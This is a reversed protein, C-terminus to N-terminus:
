VRGDDERVKSAGFLWYYIGIVLIGAVVMFGIGLTSM